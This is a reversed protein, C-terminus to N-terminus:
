RLTPLVFYVIAVVLLIIMAIGHSIPNIIKRLMFDSDTWRIAKEPSCVTAYMGEPQRENSSLAKDLCYQGQQYDYQFPAETRISAGYLQDWEEEPEDRAHPDLILHRLKGDPFLILKDESQTPTRTTTTQSLSLASFSFLM